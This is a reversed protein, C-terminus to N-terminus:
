LSPFARPASNVNQETHVTCSSVSGNSLLHYGNYINLSIRPKPISSFHNLQQNSSVGIHGKLAERIRIRVLM